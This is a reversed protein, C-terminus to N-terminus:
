DSKAVDDWDVEPPDPVPEMTGPVPVSRERMIREFAELDPEPSRKSLHLGLLSLKARITSPSRCLVSEMERITCGAKFMEELVNLATESWTTRNRKGTETM